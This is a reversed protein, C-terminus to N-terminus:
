RTTPPAPLAQWPLPTKVPTGNKQATWWRRWASEELEIPQRTVQRLCSLLVLHDVGEPRDLAAMLLETAMQRQADPILVSVLFLQNPSGHDLAHGLAQIPDELISGVKIPYVSVTLPEVAIPRPSSNKGAKISISRFEGEIAYTRYVKLQPNDQSTPISFRTSWRAGPALAIKADVEQFARRSLSGVAGLPEFESYTVDLIFLGKPVPIPPPPAGRRRSQAPEREPTITVLAIEMPDPTLNELVVSLNITEGAEYYEQDPVFTAKVFNTQVKRDECALKFTKIKSRLVTDPRLTLIAECTRAAEDYQGHEALENADLFRKELFRDVEDLKEVGLAARAKQLEEPSLGPSPEDPGGQASDGPPRPAANPEAVPRGAGAADANGAPQGTATRPRRAGRADPYKKLLDAILEALRLARRERLREQVSLVVPRGLSLLEDFAERAAQEDPGDLRELLRSINRFRGLLEEDAADLESPSPTDEELAPSAANEGPPPTATATATAPAPPEGLALPGVLVAAALLALGITFVRHRM